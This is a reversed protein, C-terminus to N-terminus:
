DVPCLTIEEPQQEYRVVPQCFEGGIVYIMTGYPQWGDRIRQRVLEALGEVRPSTAIAFDVITRAHQPQYETRPTDEQVEFKYCGCKVVMCEGPHSHHDQGRHMGHLHGCTCRQGTFLSELDRDSM